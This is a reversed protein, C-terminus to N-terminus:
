LAGGPCQQWDTSAATPMRLTGTALSVATWALSDPNAKLCDDLSPPYNADYAYYTDPDNLFKHGAEHIILSAGANLSFNPMRDFDIHIEGNRFGCLPFGNLAYRWTYGEDDDITGAAITAGGDATRKTIDIDILYIGTNLHFSLSLMKQRIKELVWRRDHKFVEGVKFPKNVINDTLLGGATGGTSSLNFHREMATTFVASENRRQIVVKAMEDNAIRVINRAQIAARNIATKVALLPYVTGTPRAHYAIQVGPSLFENTDTYRQNGGGLRPLHLATTLKKFPM